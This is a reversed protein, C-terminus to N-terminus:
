GLECSESPSQVSRGPQTVGEQEAPRTFTGARAVAVFSRLQGLEMM